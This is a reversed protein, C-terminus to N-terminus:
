PELDLAECAAKYDRSGAKWEWRGGDGRDLKAARLKRRAAATTIEADKALDALTVVESGNSEKEKKGKKSKKEEVKAEEKAVKKVSKKAMKKEKRGSTGAPKPDPIPEELDRRVQDLQKELSDM